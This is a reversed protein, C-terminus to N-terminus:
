EDSDDDDYGSEPDNDKLYKIAATHYRKAEKLSLDTEKDIMEPTAEAIAKISIIGADGLIKATAKGIGKVKTLDDIVVSDFAEKREDFAKKDLRSYRTDTNLKDYEKSGIKAGKTIGNGKRFLVERGLIPEAM